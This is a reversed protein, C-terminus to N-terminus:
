RPCTTLWPCTLTPRLCSWTPWETLAAECDRHYNQRIQSTEM